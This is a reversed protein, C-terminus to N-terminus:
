ISDLDTIDDIDEIESEESGETEGIDISVTEIKEPEKESIESSEEIVKEPVAEETVGIKTEEIKEEQIVEEKEVPADRTVEEETSDQKQEELEKNLKEIEEEPNPKTDVFQAIFEVRDFMENKNTKGKFKVIHGLLENKIDEFGSDKNKVIDEHLMNFLKQTQNKWLVVRINETGDDLFLNSVYSYDPNEVLKDEHYFSGEKETVKKGSEPDVMWFRPDFVQVITGMIEVNQDNENLDQIKKRENTLPKVDLSEDTKEVTTKDGLHIEVRGQNDRSYGSDIKIVDGENLTSLLDAKDNWAVVRMVGTEDGLLFNGVKGKRENKQFERIEYIKVVKGKIQVNRMGALVNKVQLEGVDELIKVGLENSIIHLAGEESILGSLQDLKDKVKSQIQSDTLNTKEKIKNIIMDKPIKIM